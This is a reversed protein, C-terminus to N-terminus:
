KRGKRNAKKAKVYDVAYLGMLVVTCTVATVRILISIPSLSAEILTVDKAGQNAEEALVGSTSTIEESDNETEITDSESQDASESNLTDVAEEETSSADENVRESTDNDVSTSNQTSSTSSNQSVNNTTSGSNSGTTGANSSGTNSGTTGDNSEGTSDGAGSDTSDSTTGGTPKGSSNGTSGGTSDGTTGETPKGSSSGTSGGTTGDTSGGSGDITAGTTGDAVIEDDDEEKDNETDDTITPAVTVDTTNSIETKSALDFKIRIAMNDMGPMPTEANVIADHLEQLESLEFSLCSVKGNADTTEITAVSTDGNPDVVKLGTVYGSINGIVLPVTYCYVRYTGNEYVVRAVEGVCADMMSAQDNTAHWMNIKIEYITKSQTVETDEVEKMQSLDFKLRADALNVGSNVVVEVFEEMSDLEFSFSAATGDDNYSEVDAAVKNGDADKTYLEQLSAKIGFIEVEQSYIYVKYKNNEEEVHATNIIAGGAMSEQDKTAHWLYVPVEYKKIEAQQETIAEAEVVKVPVYIGGVTMMVAMVSAIMTKRVNRM